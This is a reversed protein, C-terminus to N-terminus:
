WARRRERCVSRTPRRLSILYTHTREVRTHNLIKQKEIGVRPEPTSTHLHANHAHSCSIQVCMHARACARAHHVCLCLHMFVYAHSLLRPISSAVCRPAMPPALRPCPLLLHQRLAAGLPWAHPHCALCQGGAAAGVRKHVGGHHSAHLQM